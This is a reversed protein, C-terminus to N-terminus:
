AGYTADTSNTQQYKSQAASQYESMQAIIEPVKDQLFDESAKALQDFSVGTNDGWTTSALDGLKGSLADGNNTFAMNVKENASRFKEAIDNNTEIANKLYKVAEDANFVENAM